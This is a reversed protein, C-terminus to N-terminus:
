DLSLVTRNLSSTTLALLAGMEGGIVEAELLTLANVCKSVFVVHMMPSKNVGGINEIVGTFCIDRFLQRLISYIFITVSNSVQIFKHIYKTLLYYLSRLTRFMRTKDSSKVKSHHQNDKVEVKLM